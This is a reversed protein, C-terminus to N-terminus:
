RVGKKFLLMCGVILWSIAFLFTPGSPIHRILPFFVFTGPGCAVLL